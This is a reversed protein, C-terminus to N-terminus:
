TELALRLREHTQPCPPGTSRSTTSSPARVQVAVTDQTGWRPTICRCRAKGGDVQEARVPVRRLHTCFVVVVRTEATWSADGILEVEVATGGTQPGCAPLVKVEHLHPM